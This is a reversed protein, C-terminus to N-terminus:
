TQDAFHLGVVFEGGFVSGTFQNVISKLRMAATGKTSAAKPDGVM